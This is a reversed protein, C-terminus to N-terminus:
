VNNTEIFLNYNDDSIAKFSFNQVNEGKTFPLDYDEVVLYHINLIALLKNRVEIATKQTIAAKFSSVDSEPYATLDDSVFSGTVSIDLDDEAWREKISGRKTTKAVRRRVIINKGSVSILPEVPFTWWSGDPLCLSLPLVMSVTGNKVASNLTVQDM